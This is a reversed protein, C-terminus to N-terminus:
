LIKIKKGASNLEMSDKFIISTPIKYASLRMSCFQKIYETTIEKGNENIVIISMIGEGLLEDSISEISCDVVGPIM